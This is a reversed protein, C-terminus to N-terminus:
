RGGDESGGSRGAALSPPPEHPAIQQATRTQDMVGLVAIALLIATVAPVTTFWLVTRKVDSLMSQMASWDTHSIQLTRLATIRLLEIDSESEIRAKLNAEKALMEPENPRRTVERRHLHVGLGLLVITLVGHIVLLTWLLPLPHVKQTSM